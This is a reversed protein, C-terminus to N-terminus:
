TCSFPGPFPRSKRQGSGTRRSDTGIQMARAHSCHVGHRVSRSPAGRSRGPMDRSAPSGRAAVRRLLRMENPRRLGIREGLRVRAELVAVRRGREGLNQAANRGPSVGASVLGALV